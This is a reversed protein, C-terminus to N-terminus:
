NDLTEFLNRKIMEHYAQLVYWHEAPGFIETEFFVKKLEEDSAESAPHGNWMEYITM